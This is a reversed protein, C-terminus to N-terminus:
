SIEKEPYGMENIANILATILLKKDKEVQTIGTKLKDILTKRVEADTNYASNEVVSFAEIALLYDEHIILDIFLELHKSYDLGSQWCSAVLIPLENRYRENKIAEVIFSSTDQTKLDNLFATASEKIEEEKSIHLLEILDNILETCDSHERLEEIADLVTKPKQSQFNKRLRKILEKNIM